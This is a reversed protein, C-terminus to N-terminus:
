VAACVTQGGTMVGNKERSGKRGNGTTSSFESAEPVKFGFLFVLPSTGVFQVKM